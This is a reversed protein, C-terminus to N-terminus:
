KKRKQRIEMWKKKCTSNGFHYSGGNDVIYQAVDKWPISAGDAHHHSKRSRGYGMLENVAQNLLRIDEPEWVPKRVRDQKEKTLTRYRGRLTSEAESFGGLEKIERYSLGRRRSDVLFQDRLAKKDGELSAPSDEGAQETTPSSEMHDEFPGAFPEWAQEVIPVGPSIPHAVQPEGFMGPTLQSPLIYEPAMTGVDTGLPDIDMPHGSHFLDHVHEYPWVVHQGNPWAGPMDDKHIDQFTQFEQPVSTVARYSSEPAHASSHPYQNSEFSSSFGCPTNVLDPPESVLASHGAFGHEVSMGTTGDNKPSWNWGPHGNDPRPSAQHGGQGQCPVPWDAIAQDVHNVSNGMSVDNHMLHSLTGNGADFSDTGMMLEMEEIYTHSLSPEDTATRGDAYSIHYNYEPAANIPFQSGIGGLHAHNFVDQIYAFTRTTLGEDAEPKAFQYQAPM